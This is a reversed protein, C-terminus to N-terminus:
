NPVPHGIILKVTLAFYKVTIKKANFKLKKNAFNKCKRCSHSKDQPNRSFHTKIQYLKTLYYKRYQRTQLILLLSYSENYHKSQEFLCMFTSFHTAAVYDLLNSFVVGPVQSVFVRLGQELVGAVSYRQDYLPLITLHHCSHQDVKATANDLTAIAAPV